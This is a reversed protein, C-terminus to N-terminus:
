ALAAPLFPRLGLDLLDPRQLALEILSDPAAPFYSQPQTELDNLLRPSTMVALEKGIRELLSSVIFVRVEM